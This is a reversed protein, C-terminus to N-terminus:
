LKPNWPNQMEVKEFSIVWVWPNDIFKPDDKKHNIYDWLSEFSGVLCSPFPLGRDLYDRWGNSFHQDRHIGEAICDDPTIDMLREVRVDTIRIFTRAFKAPMFRAQRYRGGRYLDPLCFKSDGLNYGEYRDSLFEIDAGESILSPKLKDYDIHAVWPERVYLLDGPQYRCVVTLYRDIDYDAWKSLTEAPIIRRTMTKTGDHVRAALLLGFSIGKIKETKM